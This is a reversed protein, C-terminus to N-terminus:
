KGLLHNGIANLSNKRVHTEGDHCIQSIGFHLSFPLTCLLCQRINSGFKLKSENQHNSANEQLPFISHPETTHKKISGLGFAEREKKKKQKTKNRFM